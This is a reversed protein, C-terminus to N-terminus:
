NSSEVFGVVKMARVKRVRRVTMTLQSADKRQKKKQTKKLATQKEKKTLLYTYIYERWIM